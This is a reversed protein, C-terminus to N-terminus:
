DVELERQLRGTQGVEVPRDIAQRTGVGHKFQRYRCLAGQLMKAHIVEVLEPRSQLSHARCLRVLERGQQGANAVSGQRRWQLDDGVPAVAVAVVAPLLEL